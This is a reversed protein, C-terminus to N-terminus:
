SIIPDWEDKCHWLNDQVIQAEMLSIGSQMMDMARDLGINNVISLETSYDINSFNCPGLYRKAGDSSHEFEFGELMYNEEVVDLAGVEIGRWEFRTQGNEVDRTTGFVMVDDGIKIDSFDCPIYGM